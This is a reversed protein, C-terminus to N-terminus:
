PSPPGQNRRPIRDFLRQAVPDLDVLSKGTRRRLKRAWYVLNLRNSADPSALKRFRVRLDDGHAIEDFFALPVEDYRAGHEVHLRLRYELDEGGWEQFWEDFGGSAEFLTAPLALFGVLGPHEVAAPTLASIWFRDAALRARLWDVFGPNCVTDADLFCVHTAGDRILRRAGLNHAAGKNFHPRQAVREVIVGGAAVETPYTREIWGGCDDPCDYDVLCYRVGPQGVLGPATRKLFDLRGKCPVTVSLEPM